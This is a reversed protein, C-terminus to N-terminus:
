DNAQQDVAERALELAASLSDPDNVALGKAGKAVRKNLGTLVKGPGCEIIVEAGLDIMAEVCATWRVPQYLQEVLRTRLTEVDAHAHADVNQIVTYRPTKLEVDNMAAALREAAPKMLACHSPVSVPLPLARKAGAEKALRTAQITEQSSGSHSVTITTVNPGTLAASIAQRHSDSEVKSNIGIRLMRYHADEAITAASGIGYIEVREAALIAEVARQLSQPSLVSQTDRLAQIDSHIIKDIVDAPSDKASLDEHIFQVPQVLDTAIGIKLQQFGTLGIQQCLGVVSGESASVREALETVSMHVVDNPNETIYQAIRRATPSLSDHMGQLRLLVGSVDTPPTATKRPRGRTEPGSTTKKKKSTTM